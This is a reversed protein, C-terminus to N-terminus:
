KKAPAEAKKPIVKLTYGTSATWLITNPSTETHGIVCQVVLPSSGEETIKAFKDAQIAEFSIAEDRKQLDFIGSIWIPKIDKIGDAAMDCVPKNPDNEADGKYGSEVMIEADTYGKKNGDLVIEKVPGDQTKLIVGSPLDAKIAKTFVDNAEVSITAVQTPSTLAISVDEKSTLGKKDTTLELAIATDNLKVVPAKAIDIAVSSVKGDGSVNIMKLVIKGKVIKLNKGDTEAWVKLVEENESASSAFRANTGILKAALKEDTLDTTLIGTFKAAPSTSTLDLPGKFPVAPDVPDVTPDVVAKEDKKAGGEAEPKAHKGCGSVVLISLLLLSTIKQKTKM